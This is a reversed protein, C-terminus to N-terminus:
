RTGEGNRPIDAMLPSGMERMSCDGYGREICVAVVAHAVDDFNIADFAEAFTLCDGALLM